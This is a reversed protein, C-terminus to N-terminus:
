FNFSIDDEMLDIAQDSSQIISALDEDLRGVVNELLAKFQQALLIIDPRTFYDSSYEFRFTFSQDSDYVYLTLPYKSSNNEFPYIIFGDQQRDKREEFNQFVFAVDFLSKVPNTRNNNLERVIDGLDYIQRSNAQLMYNHLEAVADKFPTYPNIQFRVPLMKVFMGVVNETEEQMRGSAATGVVIDEQGSLQSLFLFYVTFFGSFATVHQEKLFDTFPKLLHNDIKLTVNGGHHSVGDIIEKTVPLTLRPVGDEFTKLWFERHSLYEETLRFKHEWESYDKYQIELEPLHKGYYSNLFDHHLIKKSIGDCIIHHCDIVLIKRGGEQHILTCRFLPAKDLEFPHILKSITNHLDPASTTIHELSFDVKDHLHQYLEGDRIHFETRLGEHRKVLVHLAQEIRDQDFSQSVDWAMPLNYSTVKRDLQYSAYVRRQAASAHYAPKIDAKPIVFVDDKMLSGILTAQKKVTLNEFLESLSVRVGFEKFLRSSLRMISLSNGGIRYFNEKVSISKDALIDKWIELIKEELENEPVSIERAVIKSQLAQYDVKGNRLLPLESIEVISAPLMSAPILEQLHKMAADSLQQAEEQFNKRTIYAVLADDINEGAHKTVVAEKIFPSTLLMYEIEDLEIRIGRIKVQRDERGILDVNGDPMWRARDGTKYVATEDGAASRFTLFKQATLEPNNLYGKTLYASAIYLDGVILPDCSELNEDLILLAAGDMATGVSIRAANVDEPTIRYCSKIMTAETPGYLNVLQIRAGFVEYWGRLELPNIREGSLLCYKLHQFLDPSLAASSIIRFLSPVCHIYQIGADNVWAVMQEPLSIDQKPPPICITGGTLLPALIDRLYADFYPSIFQSFRSGATVQFAGTEWQLFQILSSNRGVIGKPIGSSGSTFYVYISDNEQFAPYNLPQEINDATSELLEEALIVRASCYNGSTAAINDTTSTILFAPQLEDLVAQMRKQPLSADIPVYVCRANFIGIMAYINLLRNDTIVAVITDAPCAQQIFFGSIKDSISLLRSYSIKEEDVEIAIKGAHARLSKNLEAQLIM